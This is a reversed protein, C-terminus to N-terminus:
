FPQGGSYDPYAAPHGRPTIDHEVGTVPRSRGYQPAAAYDRLPNDRQRPPNSARPRKPKKVERAPEPQSEALKGSGESRKAMEPRRENQAIPPAQGPPVLLRAPVRDSIVTAPPPRYAALGPNATYQPQLFSYFGFACLGLGIMYAALAIGPAAGGEEARFRAM